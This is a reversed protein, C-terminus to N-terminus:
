PRDLSSRFYQWIVEAMGVASKRRQIEGLGHCNVAVFKIVADDMSLFVHLGGRLVGRGEFQLPHVAMNLRDKQLNIKEVFFAVEVPHVIDALEEVPHAECGLVGIDEPTYATLKEPVLGM